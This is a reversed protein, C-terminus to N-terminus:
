GNRKEIEELINKFGETQVLSDVVHVERVTLEQPLLAYFDKQCVILDVDEPVLDAAYAKVQIKDRGRQALMRRMLAAGMASSGVGGDCVFAIQEIKKKEKMVVERKKEEEDTGCRLVTTEEQVASSIGGHMEGRLQEKPSHEPNGCEPMKKRDAWLIAMSLLFATVASLVVGALVPICGYRGAMLLIILISGPSVVGQLGANLFQFCLNGAMGGFILPVLLRLDALVFPFYVEHIGGVAQAIMASAHENKQEKKACYLALLVGFGPGPNAELLFLVSSGTEQAQQMGVPVLAAHNIVNNLFLVKAPEIVVALVGILHHSILFQMGLGLIEAFSQLVPAVLAYFGAALVGGFVAVSLNKWLMMFRFDVWQDLIREMRRWLFGALPGTLMAGFIGLKSDALLIGTVALSALVGGNSEGLERGGEYAIMAPLIYQYVLQSIAYIDENPLWGYEGCLVSLLGIFIFVGINKLIIKKYYKGIKQLITMAKEEYM